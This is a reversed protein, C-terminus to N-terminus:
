NSCVLVNVQKYSSPDGGLNIQLPNFAESADVHFTGKETCLRAPYRSFKFLVISQM